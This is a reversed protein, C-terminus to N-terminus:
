VTTNVAIYKNPMNATIYHFSTYHLDILVTTRICAYAGKLIQNYSIWISPTM